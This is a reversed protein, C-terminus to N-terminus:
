RALYRVLLDTVEAGFEEDALRDPSRLAVGHVLAEAVDLAVAAALTRNPRRIEDRRAELWSAVIQHFLPREADDMGASSIANHLGPDDAHIAILARVCREVAEKLPLPGVVGILAVLRERFAQGYRRRVEAVLAEKNGFYQYLSGISVGAEDAVGNTTVRDLGDRRLIQATARLIIEVTDHARRQVPRRSGPKRRRTPM